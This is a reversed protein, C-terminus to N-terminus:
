SRHVSTGRDTVDDLIQVDNAYRGAAKRFLPSVELLDAAFPETNIQEANTAAPRESSCGRSM